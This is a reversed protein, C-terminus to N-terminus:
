EEECHKNQCQCLTREDNHTINGNEWKVTLRNAKIVTGKKAHWGNLHIKDGVKM